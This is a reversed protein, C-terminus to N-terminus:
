TDLGRDRDELSSARKGKGSSERCMRLMLVPAHMGGKLVAQRPGSEIGVLMDCHVWKAQGSMRM